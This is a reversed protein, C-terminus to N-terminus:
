RYFYAVFEIESWAYKLWKFWVPLIQGNDTVCVYLSSFSNDRLFNSAIVKSLAGCEALEDWASLLRLCGLLFMAQGFRHSFIRDLFEWEM